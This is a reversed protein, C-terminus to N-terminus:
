RFREIGRLATCVPAEPDMTNLPSFPTVGTYLFQVSSDERGVFHFVAISM